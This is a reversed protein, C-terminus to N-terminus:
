QFLEGVRVSFGPLVDGGDLMANEAYIRGPESGSRVSITRTNPYVTWVLRAGARLWAQTKEEVEARSDGPSVIEVILDPVIDSFTTPLRGQPLRAGVIYCVDPARVTDPGHRLIVGPDGCLVVGLERARVFERVASYVNGMLFGHEWNAPAMEFLVGDVLEYQMGDDPLLFLEQATMPKDRPIARRTGPLATSVRGSPSKKSAAL